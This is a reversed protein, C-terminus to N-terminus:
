DVPTCCRGVEAGRPPSSGAADSVLCSAAAGDRLIARSVIAIAEDVADTARPTGNPAIYHPKHQREAM